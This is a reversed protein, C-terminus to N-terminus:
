QRFQEPIEGPGASGQMVFIKRNGAIWANRRWNGAVFRLLLPVLAAHTEQGDRTGQGTKGL